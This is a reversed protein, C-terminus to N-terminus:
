SAVALSDTSPLPLRLEVTFGNEMARTHLSAADGYVIALRRRTNDLGLGLGAAADAGGAPTPRPHPSTVINSVRVQLGLDDISAGIMVRVQARTPSVGHKVANEVLPQLIFNPIPATQLAAPLDVQVTMRSGFREQEIRLYAEATAVEDGLTTMGSSPSAISARLFDALLSIMREARAGRGSVTLAAIGNLTNFLFHPNLQLRLVDAEARLTAAEFAAARAANLRAVDSTRMAWVLLQCFGFTWTYLIAAFTFRDASFDLAWDRWGPAVTLALFRNYAMDLLTQMAAVAPTAVALVTLRAALPTGSLMGTLWVLGVSWGISTVMPPAYNLLMLDLAHHDQLVASLAAMVVAFLWVLAILSLNTRTLAPAAAGTSLSSFRGADTM